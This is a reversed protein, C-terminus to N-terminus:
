NYVIPFKCGSSITLGGLMTQTVVSGQLVKVVVKEVNFKITNCFLGTKVETTIIALKQRIIKLTCKKYKNNNFTTFIYLCIPLTM